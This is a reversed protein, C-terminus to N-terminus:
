NQQLPGARAHRSFSWISVSVQTCKGQLGQALEHPHQVRPSALSAKGMLGGAIAYCPLMAMVAAAAAVPVRACMIGSTSVTKRWGNSPQLVHLVTCSSM